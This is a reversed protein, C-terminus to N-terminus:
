LSDLHHYGAIRIRFVLWRPDVALKRFLKAIRVGVTNKDTADIRNMRLRTQICKEEPYERRLYNLFTERDRRILARFGSNDATSIGTGGEYDVVPENLYLIREGDLVALYQCLDEMYIAAPSTREMLERFFATQYFLQAGSINDGYVVINRKTQRINEPDAYMGGMLPVRIDDRFTREGQTNVFVRMVGYAMRGHEREMTEFVKELVECTSLADGAGIPKVYKGKAVALGAMINKITGGNERRFSFCYSTFGHVAFYARYLEEHTDESGDDCVIIEYDGMTQSLLSDLTFVINEWASRYTCLLVSFKM